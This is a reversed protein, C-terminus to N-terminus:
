LLHPPVVISLVFFGPPKLSILEFASASLSFAWKFSMSTRADSAFLVPSRLASRGESESSAAGSQCAGRSVHGFCLQGPHDAHTDVGVIHLLERTGRGLRDLIQRQKSERLGGRDDIGIATLAASWERSM